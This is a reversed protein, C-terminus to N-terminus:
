LYNQTKKLAVPEFIKDIALLGSGLLIPDTDLTSLKIQIKDYVEDLVHEKIVQSVIDHLPKGVKSLQDGIIIQDPNIINIVNSLGFGLYWAADNFVKEALPDQSQIARIIAESSCDKKLESEPYHNLEDEIRKRMSLISCYKTLCGKNGCECQPGDFNISMHGIEGATGLFGTFIKGNIVIGAGIGNAALVFLLTNDENRESEYWWEALAGLNADHELYVPISFDKKLEEKLPIHEWGPYGTMLVIRGERRIFPGPVAVGISLVTCDAARDIMEHMTKKLRNFAIEPEVDEIRETVIEDVNGQIDFLMVSYFRRSLRAGLVKYKEGNLAIGISRRGNEGDLIGTEKVLGCEILINVINTITSKKLGTEKAIQARSCVDSFRMTRIVLALNMEQIDELNKGKKNNSSM